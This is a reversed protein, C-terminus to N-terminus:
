RPFRAIRTGVVQLRSAMSSNVLTDERPHPVARLLDSSVTSVVKLLTSVPLRLVTSAKVRLLSVMSVAQLLPATSDKPLHEMSAKLRHHAMSVRLLSSAMSDRPHPAATAQKNATNAQLPTTPSKTRKITAATLPVSFFSSSGCIPLLTSLHTPV